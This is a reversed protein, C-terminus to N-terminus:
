VKEDILGRSAATYVNEVAELWGAYSFSTVLRQQASVARRNAASPDDAIEKLARAIAEPNESPILIADAGSVVDPVGGVSTAVIPVRSSMAEFLTIPTGETRSSLVFADFAAFLAAADEVAGHWTVRRATGAAEAQRQLAEKEPGDGIVSLQWPEESQRLSELMVDAGKEQSLRGVWGVVLADRSIGLQHRAALRDLQGSQAFGNRICHVRERHIGAAVLRRALPESVAVVANVKRLALLQVREYVWNRVGGGTFGHVTSVTPTNHHRAAAAAVVDPRYGHTHVVDPRLRRILRAVAHYEQLYSRAGVVIPTVPVGFKELKAVFPHTGARRPQVVAAVHARAGQGDALMSVVRELGGETTPALVHLVRAGSKM